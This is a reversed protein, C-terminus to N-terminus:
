AHAAAERAWGDTYQGSDENDGKDVAQWSKHM